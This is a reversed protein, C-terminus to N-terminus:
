EGSMKAGVVVYFGYDSYNMVQILKYLEGHWEIQDSTGAVGSAHTTFLPTVSAFSVMGTVRDGEPVQEIEKATSPWVAGSVDFSPPSQVEEIWGGLAFKGSSRFVSFTQRFHPSSLIRSPNLM